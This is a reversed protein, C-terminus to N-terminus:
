NKYLEKFDFNEIVSNKTAEIKKTKKNYEITDYEIPILIIGKADMLGYKKDKEIKISSHFSQRKYVDLHTYSVPMTMEGYPSHEEITCEPVISEYIIETLPKGEKSILGEKANLKIKYFAIGQRKYM